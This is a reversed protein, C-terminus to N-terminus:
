RQIIKEVFNNEINWGTFNIKKQWLSWLEIWHIQCRVDSGYVGRMLHHLVINTLKSKKIFTWLVNWNYCNNRIVTYVYTAHTLTSKLLHQILCIDIWVLVWPLVQAFECLRQAFERLRPLVQAFEGHFFDRRQANESPTKREHCGVKVCAFTTGAWLMKLLFDATADQWFLAIQATATKGSENVVVQFCSGLIRDLYNQNELLQWEKQCSSLRHWTTVIKTDLLKKSCNHNLCNVM